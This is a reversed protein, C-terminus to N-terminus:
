LRAMIYEQDIWFHKGDFCNTDTNYVVIDGVKIDETVLEGVSLVKGRSTLKEKLLFTNKEYIPEIVVKTSYPIV